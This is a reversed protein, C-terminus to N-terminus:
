SSFRGVLRACAARVRQGNLAELELVERDCRELWAPACQSRLEHPPLHDSESALGVFLMFDPDHDLRSVEFKLVALQRVGEVFPIAGNALGRAADVVAKRVTSLHGEDLTSV